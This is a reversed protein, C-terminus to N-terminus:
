KDKMVGADRRYLPLHRYYVELTLLSLSTSMMRGGAENPPWSGQNGLKGGTGFDQQALLTDRIGGKGDGGPGLNWFRWHDGGMHHMVQTAYYEYYLSGTKGPGQAKLRRVGALLSANRPSVGLYQRCLLGVATMTATVESNAVYSYGGRTKEVSDLFREALRLTRRPVNLGAMQGSKLAMVMWGTVSTDGTTRPAYRWGGGVDQANVIYNIGLQASAKWVPDSTLGFAECMTITALGHAYADGGYYGRDSGSKHQRAVLWRLGAQVAKSYDTLKKTASPKHTIGAGLFPLLGFATAATNNRRSTGPESNDRQVRGKPHGLPATRAFRNCDHLSWHGDSAQHLALWRLGRAVAAESRENGGGENVMKQRTGASRGGFGGPAGLPGGMGGPTGFM